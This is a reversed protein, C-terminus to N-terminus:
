APAVRALDPSVQHTKRLLPASTNTSVIGALDRYGEPVLHVPDNEGWLRQGTSTVCTKLGLDCSNNLMTPDIIDYLLNNETAWIHLLRKVGEPRFAIEEGLDVENLNDVHGGDECCRSHVYRPVPLILVCGSKRLEVCLPLCAALVKKTFSPPAVTLSGIVHYKGDEARTAESPLGDGDTGMFTPNSLLDLIVTDSKELKLLHLRTALNSIMPEKLRFGPFALSITEQGLEAALRVM